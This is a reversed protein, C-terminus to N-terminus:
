RLPLNGIILVLFVNVIPFLIHRFAGLFFLAFIIIFGYRGISNYQEALEDPLFAMVIRSGDLPPIPILNFFTLVLNIMVAFYLAQILVHNAGYKIFLRLLLGALLALLFNSAPGALGVMAMDKKPDQFRMPNVPVPKAWGFLFRQGTIILFLPFLITGFIDIHSLPNLTLRGADRATTDGKWLAVKGHAVEHFVVSFVLVIVLPVSDIINSINIM